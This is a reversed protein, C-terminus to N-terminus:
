KSQVQTQVCSLSRSPSLKVVESKWIHSVVKVGPASCVMVMESGSASGRRTVGSRIHCM